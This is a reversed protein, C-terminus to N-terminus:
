RVPIFVDEGERPHIKLAGSLALSILKNSALRKNMGTLQRYTTLTISNHTEFYKFLERTSEEFVIASQEKKSRELIQRMEYSAQVSKDDIRVFAKGYRHKKELFAFHPKSTSDPIQYHLIKVGDKFRIMDVQFDLAPRCLDAIAKNMVFEDEEPFNLGMPKGDDSVGIFLHGGGTNAFAVIERIIKEPHNTKRKFEVTDCEGRRILKLIESHEENKM